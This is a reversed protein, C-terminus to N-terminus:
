VLFGWESFRFELDHVGLKQSEVMFELGTV